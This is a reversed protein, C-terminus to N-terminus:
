GKCVLGRSRADSMGLATDVALTSLACVRLNQEARISLNGNSYLFGWLIWGDTWTKLGVYEPLVHMHGCGIRKARRCDMYLLVRTYMHWADGSATGRGDAPSSGSLQCALNHVSFGQTHQRACFGAEKPCYQPKLNASPEISIVVEVLM